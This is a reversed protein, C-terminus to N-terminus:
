PRAFHNGIMPHILVLLKALSEEGREVLQMGINMTLCAGASDGSIVIRDRDIGLEDARAVVDKFVAYADFAPLPFKTEPCLRYSCNIVVSETDCAVRNCPPIWITSNNLICGGGHFYVM